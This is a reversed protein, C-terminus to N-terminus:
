ALPLTHIRWGGFDCPTTPWDHAQLTHGDHPPRTLLCEVARIVGAHTLWIVTEAREAQAVHQCHALARQTRQLLAQVSEGAGPRHTLFDQTWADIAARPIADWLQGEWHGFDMEQLDPLPQSAPLGAQACAAALDACRRAPSHWLRTTQHRAPHAQWAAHLQRAAARTRNPEALVDLRGYCTGPAVQPTAHRVLWLSLAAPRM